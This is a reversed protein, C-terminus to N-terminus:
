SARNRAVPTAVGRLRGRWEEVLADTDSDDPHFGPRLYGLLARASGPSFLRQRRLNRLHHHLHRRSLLRRDAAVSRVVALAVFGGLVGIAVSLGAVRVAYSGSVEDLVDFAVNKHELEELAHWTLLAELTPDGALVERTPEHDLLAEALIGTLHEAAATIALPLTAPPLKALADLLRGIRRDVAATPYGLAALRENLDRHERGHMAEQGIFANVQQRLVPRDKVKSRHRRVSDVFFDEGLPFSASLVAMLHSLIPDDEVIWRSVHAETLDLDLRRVPISREASPRAPATTAAM